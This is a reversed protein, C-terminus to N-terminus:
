VSHCMLDNHNERLRLPLRGQLSELEIVVCVLECAEKWAVAQEMDLQHPRSAMMVQVARTCM